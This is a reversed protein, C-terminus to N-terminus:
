ARPLLDARHTGPGIRTGPGASATVEGAELPEGCESCIIVAKASVGCSHGFVVPPGNGDDLWRDGWQTLAVVMPVLDRGMDTLVYEDRPRSVSRYTRREIVGAAELTKLRDALVSRAVGLDARLDDFRSFGMALDRVILPTWPEGVVSWARAISCAMASFDTRQTM